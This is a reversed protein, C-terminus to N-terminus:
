KQKAEFNKEMLVFVFVRYSEEKQETVYVFLYDRDIGDLWVFNDIM